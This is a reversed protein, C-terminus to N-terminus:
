GMVRLQTSPEQCQWEGRGEFCFFGQSTEIRESQKIFPTNFRAFRSSGPRATGGGTLAPSPEANWVRKLAERAARVEDPALTYPDRYQSAADCPETALAFWVPLALGLARILWM